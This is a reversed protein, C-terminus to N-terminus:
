NYLSCGPQKFQTAPHQITGSYFPGLGLVKRNEQYNDSRMPGTQWIVIGSAKEWAFLSLKAVAFQKGRVVLFLDPIANADIIGAKDTQSDTGYAALGAEIIVDAQGRSEALRVGNAILEKRIRYTVYGDSEDGLGGTDFFCNRGFLPGFNISCM